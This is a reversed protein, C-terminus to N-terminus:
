SSQPASDDPVALGLADLKRYLTSRGIRLRRAAESMRGRYHSLAFRIVDAEIDELPRVEGARDVLALTGFADGGSADPILPHDLGAGSDLFLPPGDFGLAGAPPGLPPAVITPTDADPDSEGMQAVIQPFEAPGIDEGEALVVARFIANELQRVNGPWQYASLLRLTDAAMSRIRKGEEAAFRVLFHRTLEPIDEPRERLPPISIPFVHLRYFLDERFRGSKVDTALNRNTASIIRANVRIPRKAGVPEVEGEQIARLLKVQVPPPLEGVEDLFLTGGSAELFKGDHRDTAGTFAGKEHGFLISEVLNEPMAGCNVAVFPKARRDGSGHIARAILEKGVGSEGEILVPITSNATKEAARLVAHMRPSRTIIDRFTLTGSRSRKLRAIEGELARTTIANRLSVMLREAGIPKVAFDVAGARMATVVTDIGGHATQVIVPITLGADRMRALVGMGDLDPMVLDLVVCDIAAGDPALLLRVAADGSDVTIAEYGAKVVMNEVLRCQVPDDDVILVREAM